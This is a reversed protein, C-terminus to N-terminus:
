KQATRNHRRVASERLTAVVLAMKYEGSSRVGGSATCRHTV